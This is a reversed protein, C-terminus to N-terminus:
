SGTTTGPAITTGPPLLTTPTPPPGTTTTSPTDGTTVSVPTTTSTPVEISEFGGTSAWYAIVIIAIVVLTKLLGSGSRTPDGEYSM